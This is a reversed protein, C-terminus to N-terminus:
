WPSGQLRDRHHDYDYYRYKTQKSFFFFVDVDMRVRGEYSEFDIALYRQYKQESEQQFGISRRVRM